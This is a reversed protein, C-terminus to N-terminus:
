VDTENRSPVPPPQRPHCTGNSGRGVVNGRKRDVENYYDHLSRSIEKDWQSSLPRSPVKPPGNMATQPPLSAPPSSAEMSGRKMRSPIPLGTHQQYDSEISAPPANAWPNHTAWSDRANSMLHYEPNDLSLTGSPPFSTPSRPYSAGKSTPLPPFHFRQGTGTTPDASHPPQPYGSPAGAPASNNVLPCNASAPPPPYSPVLYDNEDVALGVRSRRNTLHHTSAYPKSGPPPPLPSLVGSSSAHRPRYTSTAAAGVPLTATQPNEGNEPFIKYPYEKPCIATCVFATENSANSEEDEVYIRYNRCSNCDAPLPGRCGGACEEACPFCQRAEENAYHDAPCRESCHENTRYHACEQCVSIHFGWATCKKCRPHCHRCVFKNALPLLMGKENRSVYESFFGDPCPDREKLCKVLGKGDELVAKACSVCGEEDITDKPGRCGGECIPDCPLCTKTKNFTNEPCESVCTGREDQFHRCQSCNAPGPGRCEGVCEPDCRDCVKPSVKYLGLAPDCSEVCSTQFKYGECDLCDDDGPGWCGNRCLRNCVQGEARCRTEDRNSKIQPVSHKSLMIKSWHISEALCLNENELISVAGARITELSRLQLTKLSTKLILLSSQLETLERGGIVQLSRFASLDTFNPHTAQITLFGTIEKLTSFVELASPDMSPIKAGLSYNELVDQFGNFSHEMVSLSGQIVTCGKFSDINKAHVVSVGPCQKPCPGDCPVCTATRDPEHGDPCNRVCAGNDKLLHRPCVSGSM